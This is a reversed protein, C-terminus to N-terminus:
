ILVRATPDGGDSAVKALWCSGSPKQCKSHRYRIDKIAGLCDTEVPHIQPPHLNAFMSQFTRPRGLKAVYGTEGLGKRFARVLDASADASRANVFRIAPMAAQQVRADGAMGIGAIFERRRM